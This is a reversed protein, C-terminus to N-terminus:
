KVTSQDFFVTFLAGVSFTSNEGGAQSTMQLTKAESFEHKM